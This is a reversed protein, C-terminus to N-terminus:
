LGRLRRAYVDFEKYAEQAALRQAMTVGLEEALDIPREVAHAVFGPAILDVFVRGEVLSVSSDHLARGHLNRLKVAEESSYLDNYVLNSLRKAMSDCAVRKEFEDVWTGRKIGEIVELPNDECAAISLKVTAKVLQDKFALPLDVLMRFVPEVYDVTVTDCVAKDEVSDLLQVWARASREYRIMRRISGFLADDYERWIVDFEDSVISIPVDNKAIHSDVVLMSLALAPHGNLVKLVRDVFDNEENDLM